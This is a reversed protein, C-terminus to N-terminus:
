LRRPQSHNTGQRISNYLADLVKNIDDNYEPPSIKIADKFAMPNNLFARWNVRWYEPNDPTLVLSIASAQVTAVTAVPSMRSTRVVVLGQRSERSEREILNNMRTRTSVPGPSFLANRGPRRESGNGSGSIIDNSTIRRVRNQPPPTSPPTRPPPTSPTLEEQSSM